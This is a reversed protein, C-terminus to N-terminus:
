QVLEATAPQTKHGFARGRTADPKREEIDRARKGELVRPRGGRPYANAPCREIKERRLVYKVSAGGMKKKSPLVFQTSLAQAPLHFGMSHM